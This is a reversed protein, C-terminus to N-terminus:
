QDGTPRAPKLGPAALTLSVYKMEWVLLGLHTGVIAFGLTPLDIWPQHRLLVLAVLIVVAGAAYARGSPATLPSVQRLLGLLYFGTGGADFGEEGAYGPLFGFVRWGIGIFPLYGVVIAAAFAAPLAWGWRRYLAPLLVAPYLKTLTAGALFLGAFGDRGRRVAWLAAVILAILAADIHGSGAVDTNVRRGKLDQISQVDKTALIHFEENYLKTVYRITDTVDANKPDQTSANFDPVALRVKEVGLGTGTKIWDQALSSTLLFLPLLLLFFRKM